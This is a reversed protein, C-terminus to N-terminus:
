IAEHKEAVRELLRLSQNIAKGWSLTRAYELCNKQFEQYLKKNQFLLMIQKAMERPSNETLVIGTQGNKVSDRLGAVDYVVAPTSQSAAEAIVLGWGEKVSAHLLLHAMAMRKLKDVESMTGLFQVSQSLEYDNTMLKLHQIYQSNGKGIIWLKAKADERNIFAFSKIVEEIGKMKVIRSVFICTLNKEKRSITKKVDVNLGNIIVDISKQKVGLKILEKKTSPSVTMFAAFRYPIFIIKELIRGLLFIPFPYMYEWIENAVEHIFVIIPKRVYFPTFFPLGHIEDVVVDFKKKSFLYFIPALLYVTIFNGKRYIEVGEIKEYNKAGKFYSTFWTVEHGNIVWGKAHELTVIEAGGSKPNKSYVM